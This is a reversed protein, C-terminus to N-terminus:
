RGAHTEGRILAEAFACGNINVEVASVNLEASIDGLSIDDLFVGDRLANAPILLKQGLPRGKLGAIIDRGTLLGSVTITHGFFNNRIEYVDIDVNHSQRAADCLRMIFPGAAAGTALSVRRNSPKRKKRLARFFEREFLATMGVGNELQPFDEYSEFAPIPLGANLYFEDAAYVFRTNHTQLFANQYSEILRIVAESDEAGFPTLATLNERFRTLGVPVVSLSNALPMFGALDEITKKLHAGDNVGKCLVIQYNMSIGADYLRKLRPLLNAAEPNRLMKVRLGPETSHVSINIPSLHYYIIRDLESDAMNTLTVYNGTLFSLRADDDKFYLTPRMQAPLQDIFCFVCSNKCRRAEDMLGNEFSLGLDDDERKEVDVALETGDPKRILLRCLKEQIYYRYDFVDRVPRGNIGILADGPGIGKGACVGRGDVGAIVKESM